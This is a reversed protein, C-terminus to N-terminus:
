GNTHKKKSRCSIAAKLNQYCNRCRLALEFRVVSVEDGEDELLGSAFDLQAEELSRCSIAGLSQYGALDDTKQNYNGGIRWMISFM